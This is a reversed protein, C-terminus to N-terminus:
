ARLPASAALAKVLPVDAPPMPLDDIEDVTVWRLASADLPRPEGAWTRAVYLLLVLHREGLTDSAFAIPALADPAVTVGLEEELERALAAEPTEGPEVKGGPFEWLGPMSRRPARQQLLIRGDADMLAAAVVLLIPYGPAM